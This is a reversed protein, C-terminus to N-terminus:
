AHSREAPQSERPQINQAAEPPAIPGPPADARRAAGMAARSFLGTQVRHLYSLISVATVIVTAWVFANQVWTFQEFWAQVALVVGVTVSQIFMKLKGMWMAAFHEGQSESFARIASVVLERLLVVVAMWPAVGTVIRGSQVDYFNAGCFFVFAGCIIVKDVVPDVVRGFSTVQQLTRALWGDLIDTLAAIVFVWFAVPLIWETRPDRVCYLSLLVLFVVALLLRGITIQNPLNVRM